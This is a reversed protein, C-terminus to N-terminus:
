SQNKQKRSFIEGKTAIDKVTLEKAMIGIAKMGWDVFAYTVLRLGGKDGYQM